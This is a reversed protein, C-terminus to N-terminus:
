AHLSKWAAGAAIESLSWQHEALSWLFPLRHAPMAPSEIRSLDSLGMPACTSWPAMVFVPVGVLLADVAAASAFTILAWADHLDSGIPRHPAHSKWRIVVPRDTYARLENVISLTWQHADIGFQRMYWESQPCIIISSGTARWEPDPFRGCLQNLRHPRAERLDTSTPQYQYKNKEVRYYKGRRVYAHDGYYWDRGEQQAQRLLPWTAPTCFASFPGPQLDTLINTKSGGCGAAFAQAFKPSTAEEAVFYTTPIAPAHTM